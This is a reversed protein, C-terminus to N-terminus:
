IAVIRGERLVFKKKTLKVLNKGKLDEFQISKEKANIDAVKGMWKGDKSYVPLGILLKTIRRTVDFVYSIQYAILLVIFSGIISSVFWIVDAEKTIVLTGSDLIFWLLLVSVLYLFYRRIEHMKKFHLLDISKGIIISIVAIVLYVYTTQVSVVIRLLSNEIPYYLYSNYGTLVGFALFFLSGIYFPFSTRQISFNATLERASHIIKEELGFGKLLLYAGFVLAILQFSLSGLAFYLLLIIGPVGFVIRALFPDKLAEKVAYYASEVERAQKVYITEKSILPGRSQIIPIVQDDEAGDTVLVFADANFKSMVEDLQENIKKDSEFGKKGKGTLTAIETKPYFAKVEDFMKVAGFICNADSEGPDALALKTATELNNKRGTIPGEIGTKRGIDNDRDICLVMVKSYKSPM